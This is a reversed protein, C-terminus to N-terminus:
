FMYLGIERLIYRYISTYFYVLYNPTTRDWVTIVYLKHVVHLQTLCGIFNRCLHKPLWERTRYCRSTVETDSCHLEHKFRQYRSTAPITSHLLHAQFNPNYLPIHGSARTRTHIDTSKSVYCSGLNNCSHIRTASHATFSSEHRPRRVLYGPLNDCNEENGGPMHLPLVETLGRGSGELDHIIWWKDTTGVNSATFGRYMLSISAPRSVFVGINLSTTFKVENRRLWM